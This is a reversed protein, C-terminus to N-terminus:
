ASVAAARIERLEEISFPPDSRHLMAHCNPCVPRLDLVPDVDHSKGEASLPKLHHVHMFGDGIAGFNVGFNFNCVTCNPGYHALCAARARPNREYANVFVQKTAGELFVAVEDPFGPEGAPMRLQYLAAPLDLRWYERSKGSPSV